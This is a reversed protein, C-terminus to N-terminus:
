KKLKSDRFPYYITDVKAASWPRNHVLTKSVPLTVYKENQKLQFNGSNRLKSKPIGNFKEEKSYYHNDRISKALNRENLNLSNSNLSKNLEITSKSRTLNNLSDSLNLSKSVSLPDIEIYKL